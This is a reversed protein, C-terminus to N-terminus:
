LDSSHASCPFHSFRMQLFVLLLLSCHLSRLPLPPSLVLAAIFSFDAQRMCNQFHGRRTSNVLQNFSHSSQKSQESQRSGVTSQQSSVPSQHFSQSSWQCDPCDRCCCRLQHFEHESILFDRLLQLFICRLNHSVINLESLYAVFTAM